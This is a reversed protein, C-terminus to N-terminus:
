HPVRLASHPISFCYKLEANPTKAKKQNPATDKRLLEYIEVSKAFQASEFYSDGLAMLYDINGRFKGYLPELVATVAEPYRRLRAYIQGLMIQARYRDTL